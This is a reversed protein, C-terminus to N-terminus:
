WIHFATTVAEKALQAPDFPAEDKHHGHNAHDPGNKQKTCGPGAPLRPGPIVDDSKADDSAKHQDHGSDIDTNPIM